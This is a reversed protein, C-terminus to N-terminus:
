WYWMLMVMKFIGHVEKSGIRPTGRAFTAGPQLRDRRKSAGYLCILPRQRPSANQGRSCTLPLISKKVSRAGQQSEESARRTGPEPAIVRQSREYSVRPFFAAETPRRGRQRRRTLNNRRKQAGHQRPLFSSIAIQSKL